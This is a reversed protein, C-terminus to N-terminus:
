SKEVLGRWRRSTRFNWQAVLNAITSGTCLTQAVATPTVLPTLDYIRVHGSTTGNGTNTFAGIAVKTGDLSLSVCSGSQDGAAEGNIDTGLQTWTGSTNKYVRVHGSSTGNGDNRYAGIAM